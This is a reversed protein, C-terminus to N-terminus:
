WEFSAPSAIRASSKIGSKTLKPPSMMSALFDPDGSYVVTLTKNLVANTKFTLTAAGSSVAATGLTKVHTKKRHKTVLEFTVQGNPLGGGPALPEIAATLEVEKLAKKGKLVAHPELVIATAAPSVSEVATSSNVGPSGSGANYTATIAHSGLSLTSITLAAQGSDDVSVTALPTTGDFFTVTGGAAGGSTVAAVFTVSQGYVATTASSTLAITAANRTIVPAIAFTASRSVAAAYDASGSFSAVVTYTGVASPAAAGLDTGATGTGAYYTLTPTVGELSPAATGTVGTVTVTAAIPAGTYNGGPASVTVLPTAPTITLTSGTFQITYNSDAALTGQAIAYPGGAVTEGAARALHGTLVTAATDSFQFGSATYALAPDPSGFVKTEPEATVTLTAPTITLTNGTFSMTYDSSAALTGQTIAYPGGSVTEGPTRSLHGTLVSVATDDITVGDVTTNVLGTATDTLTPDATGYVKTEQNAIVTLIAPTIALTGGTFSMSYNSDAALTGQTIAYDGVQEGALTGAQSRALAGTLVSAATDDITVGDVTTVIFGTATVTLTPDNTGYLKTQLNGGVTLAAPTVTLSSGTFNITYNSAALTGQTIAYDGVEEGALTGAQSRALAGTLVSAATDDIAVGDVTTDVLGTASDTM